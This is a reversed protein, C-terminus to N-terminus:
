QHCGGTFLSVDWNSNMDNSTKLNRDESNYCQITYKSTTCVRLYMGDNRPFMSPGDKPCTLFTPVRRCPTLIWFFLVLTRMRRAFRLYGFKTITDKKSAVYVCMSTSTLYNYVILINIDFPM